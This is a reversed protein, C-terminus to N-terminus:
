NALYHYKGYMIQALSGFLNLVLHTRYITSTYKKGDVRTRGVFPSLDQFINLILEVTGVEPRM